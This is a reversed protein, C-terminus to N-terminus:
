QKCYCWMWLVVGCAWCAYSLFIYELISKLFINKKLTVRTCPAHSFLLKLVNVNICKASRWFVWMKFVVTFYNFILLCGNAQILEHNLLIHKHDSRRLCLTWRKQHEDSNTTPSPTQHINPNITSFWVGGGSRDVSVPGRLDLGEEATKMLIALRSDSIQGRQVATM